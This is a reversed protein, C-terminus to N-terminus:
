QILVQLSKLGSYLFSPIIFFHTLLTGNNHKVASGIEFACQNPEELITIHNEYIHYKYVKSSRLPFIYIQTAEDNLVCAAPTLEIFQKAETYEM